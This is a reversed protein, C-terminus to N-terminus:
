EADALSLPYQLGLQLLLQRLLLLIRKWIAKEKEKLQRHGRPGLWLPMIYAYVIGPTEKAMWLIEKPSFGPLTFDVARGRVHRSDPVSGPLEDNHAQCRVWLFDQFGNRAEKQRSKWEKGARM